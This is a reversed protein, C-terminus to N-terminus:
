LNENIGKCLNYCMELTPTPIGLRRAEDVAHGMTEDIELRQGRQLDQLASMRHDPATAEFKHGLEQLALVANEESENVVIKVPFPGTDELPIGKMKAITGVERMVRAWVLACGSDSAFKYTELRTLLGLSTAGVWAVLKSWQVTLINAASASNVGSRQLMASLDQVRVTSEGSIEGVEFCGNYTFSVEGSAAMEGSILASAGIVNAVGFVESLQEYWRVGNQVSTVCPFRVHSLGSIASNMQHTKVAVILVDAEPIQSPNTVIPCAANFEALGNITIGNQRLYEARDGRAVLTVDEGARALHGAIISGLAGAGLVVTKM